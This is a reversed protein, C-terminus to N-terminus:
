PSPPQGMLADVITQADFRMYDIYTSAPGDAASLSGSYLTVVRVDGAEQAITNALSTVDSVEAFIAPVNYKKITEVLAAVDQPAPEALTSAGPMVTGVIEFHYRAAFYGLFDHNTVLVRRAAPIPALLTELDTDLAALKESYAKANAQYTDAHAPDAAAFADAINQAWIAVNHPDGWVHPDCGGEQPHEGTEDANTDSANPDCVETSDGPADMYRMEVGDSVTTLPVTAASEVLQLLGEELNGGNVLVVAAQEIMVADQPAPQFAHVDSDPPVLTTIDVLDGGVNRAVDAILTTTAVVPLTTAQALLPPPVIWLLALVIFVFSRKM